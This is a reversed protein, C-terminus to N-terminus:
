EYFVGGRQSYFSPDVTPVDLACKRLAKIDVRLYTM